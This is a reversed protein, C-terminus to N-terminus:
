GLVNTVSWKHIPQNFTMVYDHTLQYLSMFTYKKPFCGRGVFMISNSIFSVFLFIIGSEYAM